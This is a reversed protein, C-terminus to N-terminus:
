IVSLTQQYTNNLTEYQLRFVKSVTGKSVNLEKAAQEITKNSFIIKDIEDNTLDTFKKSYKKLTRISGKLKRRKAHLRMHEGQSMVELNSRRNDLGNENDHHVTCGIASDGMILRHMSIPNRDAPIQNLEWRKRGMLYNTTEAQMVCWTYNSIIALDCEDIIANALSKLNTKNCIYPIQLIISNPM